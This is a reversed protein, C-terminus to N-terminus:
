QIILIKSNNIVKGTQLRLLYIGSPYREVNWDIEYNGINQSENVLTEVLQGRVNFVELKVKKSKSL